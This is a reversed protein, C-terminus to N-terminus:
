SWADAHESGTQEEAATPAASASEDQTSSGCGTVLGLMIVMAVAPAAVRGLRPRRHVSGTGEAVV